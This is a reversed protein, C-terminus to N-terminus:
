EFGQRAAVEDDETTLTAYDDEVPGSLVVGEQRMQKLEAAETELAEIIEDLNECGDALGKARWTREYM